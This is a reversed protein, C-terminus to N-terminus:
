QLLTELKKRLAGLEKSKFVHRTSELVAITEQLAQVLAATELPKKHPHSRAAVGTAEAFDALSAVMNNLTLALYSQVGAAADPTTQLLSRVRALDDSWTRLREESAFVVRRLRGNAVAEGVVTRVQAMDCPKMLYAQVGLGVSRAATTVTPSGTLLVIAPRDPLGALAAVLELERNGPMDIDSILLDFSAEALARRVADGDPVAVCQYGERELVRQFTIRFHEEDDALLIRVDSPAETAM